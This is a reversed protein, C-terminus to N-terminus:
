KTGPAGPEIKLLAGDNEAPSCTCCATPVRVCTASASSCSACCARATCSRGSSTSTSASSTDRGRCRARACPASSCTTRGNRSGTAPTSCSGPRRSRRCGSRRAAAGHGGQVPERERASRSLLPRPQRGALRLEQGPQLENVEDGGNPGHELSWVAGTTPHVTLGLINRHGMTYIEPRYGPKGVFPNDPPVTGDDKLRLTKGVLSMPDQPPMRMPDPNGIPPDGYGVSMYIMGDRGFVIRSANGVPAASFIDKVDVLRGGDWRGRALTIAGPPLAPGRGGAAPPAAAAGAPAPTQPKHYTFYVLQNDAFRPHLALDMLGALGQAQVQPLGAVPTPDLVGGRVVRLRGPRETILIAGDPLFAMSWPQNLGKTVTIRIPRVLGTDFQLPGDPIPPSPWNIPPPATANGRGPAPPQQGAISDGLM